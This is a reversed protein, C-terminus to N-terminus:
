KAEVGLAKVTAMNLYPDVPLGKARQYSNVATMTSQRIVGDSTGPNYGASRLAEQIERIKTPTANTECL